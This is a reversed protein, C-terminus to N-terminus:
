MPIHEFQWKSPVLQSLKSKSWVSYVSQRPQWMSPHAAAASRRAISATGSQRHTPACRTRGRCWMCPSHTSGHPRHVAAASRGATSLAAVDRVVPHHHVVQVILRREVAQLAMRGRLRVMVQIVANHAMIHNVPRLDAKHVARVVQVARAAMNRRRSMPRPLAVVAVLAGTVPSHDDEVVGGVRVALRAMRFVARRIVRPATSSTGYSPYRPCGPCGSGTAWTSGAASM